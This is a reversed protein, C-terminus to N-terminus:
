HHQIILKEHLIRGSAEIEVLFMGPPIGSLEIEVGSSVPNYERVLEGSMSIIRIKEPQKNEGESRVFIHGFAPNPYITWPSLDHNGIGTQGEEATLKYVTGSTIGAVYIEGNQDEGFTSFNNGSYPGNKTLVWQESSNHLSYIINNCFDAFFYYGELSLYEQGRYVFGGTVSCGNDTSHYYQYLPFQYDGVSGCGDTNYAEEGEYCRWGFNMGAGSGSPIFNVEEIRDQGVDAIWMDGTERDFSFRWPNRLGSAWIEDAAVANEIYPNGPPIAYPTGNDIDIRLMKGLLSSLDQAHNGPDGASGGDGTGIYLYGDPGFVLDGGNHNYDPQYISLIEERTGADAIDPDSDSVTFRAIVTNADLDTYNVFFYGNESYDPHFALGLLGQEGGATILGSIDLFPTPDITGDGHIIRILGGREVVFLRADGGTNAIAVPSSFGEAYVVPTVQGPGNLSFGMLIIVVLWTAPKAGEPKGPQLKMDM